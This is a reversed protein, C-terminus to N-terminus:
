FIQHSRTSNSSPNSYGTSVPATLVENNQPIGLSFLESILTYMSLFPPVSTLDSDDSKKKKM